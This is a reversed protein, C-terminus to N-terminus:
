VELDTDGRRRYSGTNYCEVFFTLDDRDRHCQMVGEAVHTQQISNYDVQAICGHALVTLSQMSDHTLSVVQM